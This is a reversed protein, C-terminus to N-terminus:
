LSYAELAKEADFNSGDQGNQIREVYKKLWKAFAEGVFYVKGDGRNDYNSEIVHKKAYNYMMQPTVVKDIGEAELKANVVRAAFFPTIPAFTRVTENQTQESM